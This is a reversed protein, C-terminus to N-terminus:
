LPIRAQLNLSALVEYLLLPCSAVIKLAHACNDVPPPLITAANLEYAIASAVSLFCNVSPVSLMQAPRKIVPRPPMSQFATSMHLNNCRHSCILWNNPMPQHITSVPCSCM